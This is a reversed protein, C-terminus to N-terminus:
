AISEVDLYDIHVRYHPRRMQTIIAAFHASSLCALLQWLHM